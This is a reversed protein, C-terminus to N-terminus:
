RARVAAIVQGAADVLDIPTVTTETGDDDILALAAAVHADLAAVYVDFHHVRLADVIVKALRLDGIAVLCEACVALDLDLESVAGARVHAEIAVVMLQLADWPQGQSTQLRALAARTQGALLELGLPVATALAQELLPRAREPDTKWIAGGLNRQGYAIGNPNGFEEAVELGRRIRSLHEALESPDLKTL